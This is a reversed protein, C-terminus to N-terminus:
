STGERYEILLDVVPWPVPDTAVFRPTFNRAQGLNTWYVRNSWEGMKGASCWRTLPFTKGGDRSVELMMQPDVAVSASEVDLGQWADGWAVGWAGGWADGGPVSVGGSLGMGV